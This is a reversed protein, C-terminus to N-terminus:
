QGEHIYQQFVEKAIPAATSGGGYETEQSPVGEVLVAVAIRPNQVPAYGVFWALTTPKGDKRVQATGTKGAVPLMPNGALRATGREGAQRMGEKILALQDAPLGIPGDTIAERRGHLLTPQLFVTERALSAAFTAMQMPTLLLFGQGISVNATDGNFWGEGYFRAAKWEPDPVLMRGTEGPLEIGTRQDLHFRRAENAIGWIGTETGRDYFFVNCSDRIADVLSEEGHGSRRHCHFIRRGVMFFGPCNIKTNQNIIGARLSAMATILKFTSGPPYLGQIARNLWAGNERIEKDVAFSIFPSLDNLDYAPKSVLALVEGTEIEIAVIAGTKSGLAKEAALQVDIDLSIELDKGKRPQEHVVREYQFGSPDVTWIEGGTLGQLESNFEKELGSRGIQGDNRFTLLTDGPLSGEPFETSDSVFGLTHAAAEGYPYWRATGSIIQVPSDIPIQEILKAYSEAPLDKILPFPLLLSQSFHREIDQSEVEENTGILANIRNMYRQVVEKRAETNLQYRDPNLGHFRNWRVLNYYEDRFEQRLENLYVVASFLPRNGVLVRGHRDYIIGRPGPMLIRRYNQREAAAAFAEEQVLQRFGLAGILLLMCIAIILYLLYLRPNVQHNTSDSSKRVTHRM